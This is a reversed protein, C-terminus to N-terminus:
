PRAWESLNWDPAPRILTSWTQVEGGALWSLGVEIPWSDQSLSSAEFDLTAFKEIDSNTGMVHGVEYYKMNDAHLKRKARLCDSNQV